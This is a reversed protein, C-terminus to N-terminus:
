TVKGAPTSQCLERSTLLAFCTSNYCSTALLMGLGDNSIDLNPLVKEEKMMGVRLGTLGRKELKRPSIVNFSAQPDTSHPM